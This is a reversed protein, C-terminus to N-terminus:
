ALIAHAARDRSAAPHFKDTPREEVLHIRCRRPLPLVSTYKVNSARRCYGATLRVEDTRACLLSASWRSCRATSLPAAMDDRASPFASAPHTLALPVGDASVSAGRQRPGSPTVSVM